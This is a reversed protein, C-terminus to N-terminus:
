DKLKQIMMLGDRLPLLLQQIRPDNHIKQNFNRIGVTSDDNIKPDLVNGSWLVNDAIILGGLRMKPFLLDYYTCYNEKDADIFALDFSHNLMPIIKAADGAIQQIQSAVNAKEFYSKAFAGIEPDTDITILKGDPKLGEALCIASYGTFTGVELIYAPQILKSLFSLFRGQLHGSIMRPVMTKLYTQRTLEQLIPPEAQSFTDAYEAIPEPLFNM